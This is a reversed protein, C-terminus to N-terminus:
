SEIKWQYEVSTARKRSISHWYRAPVNQEAELEREMAAARELEGSEECFHDSEKSNSCDASQISLTQWEEKTFCNRKERRQNCCQLSSLHQRVSYFSALQYM